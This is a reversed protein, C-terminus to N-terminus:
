PIQQGHPLSVAPRGPQTGLDLVLVARRTEATVGVGHPGDVKARPSFRLLRRRFFVSTPHCINPQQRKTCNRKPTTTPNLYKHKINALNLCPHNGVHNTGPSQEVRGSPAPFLLVFRDKSGQITWSSGSPTMSHGLFRGTPGKGKTKFMMTQAHILKVTRNRSRGVVSCM